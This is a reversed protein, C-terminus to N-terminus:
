ERPGASEEVGVRHLWGRLGWGCRLHGWCGHHPGVIVVGSVVLVWATMTFSSSPLVVSASHVGVRVVLGARCQRLSGRRSHHRDALGVSGLSAVSCVVFRASYGSHYLRGVFHPPICRRLRRPPPLFPVVLSFSHLPSVVLSSSTPFRIGGCCVAHLHISSSGVKSRCSPAAIGVGM